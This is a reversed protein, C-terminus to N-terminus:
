KVIIFDFSLKKNLKSISRIMIDFSTSVKNAIVFMVDNDIDPDSSGGVINGVVRYNSIGTQFPIPITYLQDVASTVGLYVTAAYVIQAGPTEQVVNYMTCNWNTGDFEFEYTGTFQIDLFTKPTSGWLLPANDFTVKGKDTPSAYAGFNTVRFIYGIPIQGTLVYNANAGALRILHRLHSPQYNVTTNVDIFMEPITSNGGFQKGVVSDNVVTEVSAPRITILFEEQVTTDDPDGFVDPFTLVIKGANPEFSYNIDPYLFGYGNRFIRFDKISLGILVPNIYVSSGAAPTLAGGDGIKFRIDDFLTIVGEKPLVDFNHLLTGTTAGFMRLIHPIKDLGTFSVSTPATHPALITQSAIEANPAQAEYIKIIFDESNVSPSIHYFIEM